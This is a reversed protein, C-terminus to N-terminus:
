YDASGKEWYEINAQIGKKANPDGAIPPAPIVRKPNTLKNIEAIVDLYHNKTNKDTTIKLSNVAQQKLVALRGRMTGIVATNSIDRPTDLIVGVASLYMKQLVM